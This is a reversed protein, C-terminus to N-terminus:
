HASPFKAPVSLRAHTCDGVAIDLTPPAGLDYGHRDIHINGVDSRIMASGGHDEGSCQISAFWPSPMLMAMADSCSYPFPAAFLDHHIGAPDVLVALIGNGRKRFVVHAEVEDVERCHRPRKSADISASTSEDILAGADVIPDASEIPASSWAIESAPTAPTNQSRVAATPCCAAISIFILIRAYHM